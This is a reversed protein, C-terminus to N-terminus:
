QQQQDQQEDKEEDGGERAPATAEADQDAVTGQTADDGANTDTHLDSEDKVTEEKNQDDSSM